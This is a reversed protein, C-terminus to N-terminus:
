LITITIEASIKISESKAPAAAAPIRLLAMHLECIFKIELSLVFLTFFKRRRAEAAEKTAAAAYLFKNIYVALPM